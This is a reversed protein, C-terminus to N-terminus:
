KRVACFAVTVPTCTRVAQAEAKVSNQPVAQAQRMSPALASKAIPTSLKMVKVKRPAITPSAERKFPNRASSSCPALEPEAMVDMDLAEDNLGALIDKLDEDDDLKVEADDKVKGRIMAPAFYNDLGKKQSGEVFIGDKLKM